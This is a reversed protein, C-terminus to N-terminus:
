PYKICTKQEVNLMYLHVHFGFTVLLVWENSLEKDELAKLASNSAHIIQNFWTGEMGNRSYYFSLMARAPACM